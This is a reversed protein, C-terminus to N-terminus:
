CRQSPTNLHPIEFDQVKAALDPRFLQTYCVRMVDPYCICRYLDNSALQYFTSNVRCLSPLDSLNVYDLISVIIDTNLLM